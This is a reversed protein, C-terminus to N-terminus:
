AAAAVNGEQVIEVAGTPHLRLRMGNEIQETGSAGVILPVNCERALIASHSLWGGVECVFGGARRFYPMWSLPAMRSVVIDGDSFGEIAAGCEADSAAVVCARGEVIDSGSVRIGAISGCKAASAEKIGAAAIEIDHVTLKSPLPAIKGFLVARSKRLDAIKRLEDRSAMNLRRLEEVTLYYVMGALDFRRDIAELARRLAALERLSHHKADEKLTEFDRAIRVRRLLREGGKALLEHDRDPFWWGKAPHSALSDIVRPAEVYRPESLEYDFAARHGLRQRVIADREEASANAVERIALEFATEGAPALYRFPDLGAASLIRRADQMFFQAAVNIVDITMHTSRTFSLWIRNMVEILEASSLRDFDVAELVLMASLFNPLVDDRFNREIWQADKYLRRMAWPSVWSARAHEQRKDVYLRGFVTAFYNSADEEFVHGLGLTRCALDVSGGRVWLSEMLDLSLPTPHPLVESLENQALVPVDPSAGDVLDLIRDWEQEIMPDVGKMRGTIDRSQVINFRGAICTWEIDQPANFIREIKQGLEVLLKLDIPPRKAGILNKSVRGFRFAEPVTTGSVLGDATGRVLEVLALGATQPDRTFLVGAYEADIMRQVLINRDGGQKGYAEARESDFSSLVKEIAQELNARDVNLVSEFVGAFSTNAGDEANASSRVVARKVGLRRWLGDLVRKRWENNGAAFKTLFKDTLVLGDPVAVHHARMKALRFVKNGCASLREPDDLSIVSESKRRRKCLTILASVWGAVFARQVLLLIISAIVYLDAAASLMAGTVTLIGIGIVWIAARHKWNRAFVADIYTCVLAAFIFPLILYPDRNAIDPIWWLSQPKAAAAAHVASISVAMLPLFALALLNRIPTLGHRRYFVRMAPAFGSRDSAYKAKLADIKPQLVRSKIQDQEAKASVPLVALRSAAALALIALLLGIHDATARVLHAVFDVARQWYSRRSLKLWEEIYPRPTSHTFYEWPLTYKGRYDYGARDLELGLIESFFCSRRDYCPAIIPKHPLQGILVALTNTPTPRIPLNIANPLHSMAFEGPYRVDVFITGEEDVLKHVDPTDLLVAQNRYPSVARLDELTRAKLGTLSRGEVLWKELGGVMFRCDIGKAHLNACTEYSRNGNHCILITMKGTFDVDSKPLDPFRIARSTPLGGMETEAKERIDLFMVDERTGNQKAKLLGEVEETSIGQPSRLQEQYSVEKLTPDLTKGDATPTPRALTAELRAQLNTRGVIYQYANATLSAFFLLLLGVAVISAVRASGGTRAARIGVITAGGALVSTILAVVQSISSISGIILEPSPIAFAPLTGFALIFFAAGATCFFNLARKVGYDGAGMSRM